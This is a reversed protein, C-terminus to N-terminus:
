RIVEGPTPREATSELTPSASAREMDANLESLEREV